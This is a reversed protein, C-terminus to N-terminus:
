FSPFLAVGVQSSDTSMMPTSLDHHFYIFKQLKWGASHSEDATSTSQTLYTDREKKM